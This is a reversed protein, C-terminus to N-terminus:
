PASDVCNTIWRVSATCAHCVWRQREPAKDAGCCADSRSIGAVLCRWACTAAEATSDSSRVCSRPDSAEAETGSHHLTADAQRQCRRLLLQRESVADYYCARRLGEGDNEAGVDQERLRPAVPNRIGVCKNKQWCSRRSSLRSCTSPSTHEAARGRPVFQQTGAPLKQQKTLHQWAM